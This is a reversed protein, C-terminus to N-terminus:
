EEDREFDYWEMIQNKVWTRFDRFVMDGEGKTMILKDRINEVVKMMEEETIMEIM